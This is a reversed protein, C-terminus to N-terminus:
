SRRRLRGYIERLPAVTRFTKTNVLDEYQKRYAQAEAWAQGTSPAAIEQRLAAIEQHLLATRVEENHLQDSLETVRDALEAVALAGDDKAAKVVFQYSEAEPDELATDVISQNVCGRDVPLESMFVPVVVRRTETLVLGADKIMARLSQLTFFHIHTRDLLGTARYPFNGQLLTLRVDVHAINPVSIVVFGSPKLLRVAARLADLPRRLHELVDGFTVVDFEQGELEDWLTGADLDGVVVKEAWQSAKAAADPDIEIAVVDCGRESLAKTFYGTACGVELVRKNHGVLNIASSHANNEAEPDVTNEYIFAM